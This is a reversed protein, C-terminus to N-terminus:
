PKFDNKRQHSAFLEGKRYFPLIPNGSKKCNSREGQQHISAREGTKVMIYLNGRKELLTMTYEGADFEENNDPLKLGQFSLMHNPLDHQCVFKLALRPAFVIQLHLQPSQGTPPASIYGIAVM